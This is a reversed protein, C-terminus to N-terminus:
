PGKQKLMKKVRRKYMDRKLGSIRDIFLLGQLHDIEHQLVVALMGEADLRVPRGERDVGEVQVFRARRVDARFDPVSLCGENEFVLEGESAIIRPNILVQLNRGEARNESIDYVMISKDAGVQEAALGLGPAAYMTAAMDDVLKRIAEDINEVPKAPRALIPDPYTVIELLAV